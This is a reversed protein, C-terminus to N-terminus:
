DLKKFKEFYTDIIKDYSLNSNNLINECEIELSSNDLNSKVLDNLVIRTDNILLNLKAYTLVYSNEAWANNTSNNHPHISALIFEHNPYEQKFREGAVLLQGHNDKNFANNEKKRSKAEIVIAKRESILWLVDPGLGNSDLRQSNFGIMKGLKKLAEEFQNSSSDSQLKQSIEDFKNLVAQRKRYNGLMKVIEKSQEGPTNIKRYPAKSRPKNLNNNYHFAQKHSDESKEENGWNFAIRAINHECWGRLRNELKDKTIYKELKDIAEGYYGNKWLDFSKREVKALDFNKEVTNEDILKSLNTNHHSIWDEDRELSQIITDVLDKPHEVAESVNEGIKLQSKTASTLMNFNRNQSIWDSLKKGVLLVVCYDGSGRAARGIGQEIRQAIMNALTSDNGLISSLYIEYLSNGIPLGDMILLRCADNPLDIGDYRNSFIVPKEVHKNKLNEILEDINNKAIYAIDKYNEASSFSNTLIVSNVKKEEVFYKVLTKNKNEDYKFPMLDPTLIMRESIGALSSSSFPNQIAKFDANFMKILDSDDAITASMYIRRQCDTFSPFEDILPLIPTINIENKSILAHCLKLHNRLLPWEINENFKNRTLTEFVTESKPLWSWYPIELISNEKNSVIDDLTGIKDIKRFDEKFISIIENYATSKKDINLTFSDRLIPFSTHADDLIIGGLEQPVNTGSGLVGFRSKGNFLAKYSAVMIIKGNKFDNDLPQGSQYLVTKIGFDEAMAITQQALQNTPSLYLVPKGLENMTSQAILLGVLTKGGGTHLKIVTDKQNRNEFWDTLIEKQNSFLDNFYTPKRNRNIIEWPKIPRINEQYSDLKKFNVM